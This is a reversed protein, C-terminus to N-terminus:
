PRYTYPYGDRWTVRLELKQGATRPYALKFTREAGPRLEGSPMGVGQAADAVPQVVQGDVLGEIYWFEIPASAPSNNVVTVTVVSYRGPAGGTPTFPQPPQIRIASKDPYTLVSGFTKTRSGSTPDPTFGKLGTTAAITSPAPRSSPVAPTSTATTTSSAPPTTASTSPVEQSPMASSAQSTAPQASVDQDGDATCGALALAGALVLLGLAPRGQDPPAASRLRAPHLPSM